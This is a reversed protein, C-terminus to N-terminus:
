RLSAKFEELSQLEVGSEKYAASKRYISAYFDCSQCIPRFEGREQEDILAMYAPNRNSIIDRLPTQHLDGLRLTADADRCACGNVIGTAMVQVSTFLRVCAGNKHTNPGHIHFPLGKVDDQTVYGGWNNYMLNASKVHIGATRFREVLRTIDSSVGRLTKKGPHFSLNLSFKRQAALDLLAELNAVLRKYVKETSKTIAIFTELDAGYISVVIYYLKNLQFLRAIDKPKPITLNTHFGYQGVRDNGDLLALKNLLHRDMFVDGTCPTLDFTRYGMDLAQGVCDEFFADSMSVRASQKKEYACFCCKLNCYSSTEIGLVGPGKPIFALGRARNIHTRAADRVNRVSKVLLRPKFM